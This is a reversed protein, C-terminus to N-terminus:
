KFLNKIDDDTVSDEQIINIVDTKMRVTSGGLLEFHGDTYIYEDYVNDGDEGSYVLYITNEKPEAIADLSEVKESTVGNGESPSDGGPTSSGGGQQDVLYLAAKPPQNTTIRIYSGPSVEFSKSYLTPIRPANEASILGWGEDLSLSYEIKVFGCDMLFGVQVNVKGSASVPDSIYLGGQKTLVFEKAM